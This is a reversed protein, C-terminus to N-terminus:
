DQAIYHWVDDAGAVAAAVTFGDTTITVATNEVTATGGAARQYAAAAAMTSTKVLSAGTTANMLEVVRPQFGLTVTVDEAPDPTTFTGNALNARGASTNRPDITVQM